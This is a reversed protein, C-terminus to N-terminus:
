ASSGFYKRFLCAPLKVLLRRSMMASTMSWLSLTSLACSKMSRTFAAKVALPTFGAAGCVWRTLVGQGRLRDIGFFAILFFFFFFLRRVVGPTGPAEVPTTLDTLLVLRAAIEFTTEWAARGAEAGARRGLSATM